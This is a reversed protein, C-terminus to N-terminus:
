VEPHRHNRIGYKGNCASQFKPRVISGEQPLLFILDIGFARCQIQFGSFDCVARCELERIFSRAALRATDRLAVGARGRRAPAPCGLFAGCAGSEEKAIKLIEPIEKCELM